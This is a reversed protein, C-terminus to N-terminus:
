IANISLFEFPSASSLLAVCKKRSTEDDTFAVFVFVPKMLCRSSDGGGTAESSLLEIYEESAKYHVCQRRQSPNNIVRTVSRTSQTLAYRLYGPMRRRAGHAGFM